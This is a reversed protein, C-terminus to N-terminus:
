RPRSRQYEGLASVLNRAWIRPWEDKVVHPSWGPLKMADCSKCFERLYVRIQSDLRETV